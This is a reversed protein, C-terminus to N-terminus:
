LNNFIKKLSDGRSNTVLKKAAVDYVCLRFTSFGWFSFKYSKYYNIKRAKRLVEAPANNCLIILTVDTNKHGYYPKVKKLGRQWALESLEKIKELSLEETIAFYAFEASDIDSLKAAKVLFFQEGHAFFDAEACFPAEINETRVNYYHRFSDLVKTLCEKM